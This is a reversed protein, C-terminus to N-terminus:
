NENVADTKRRIIPQIEPIDKLPGSGGLPMADSVMGCPVVRKHHYRIDLHNNRSIFFGGHGLIM